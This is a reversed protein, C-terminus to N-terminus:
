LGGGLTLLLLLLVHVLTNPYDLRTKACTYDAAKQHAALDIQSVFDQPVKARYTRVHRIHRSALWFQILTTLTLATIFVVTFTQM